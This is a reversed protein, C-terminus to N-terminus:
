LSVDLTISEDPSAFVDFISSRELAPVLEAAVSAEYGQARLADVLGGAGRELHSRVGPARTRLRVRLTKGSADLQARVLGIRSLDADLSISFRPGPDASGPKGPERRIRLPVHALRGDARVPVELVLIEDNRLRALQNVLRLDSVRAAAELTGSRDERAQALLPTSALERQEQDQLEQLLAHISDKSLPPLSRLTVEATEPTAARLLRLAEPLRLAEEEPSSSTPALSQLAEILRDIMRLRPSEQLARAVAEELAAPPPGALLPATAAVQPPSGAIREAIAQAIPALLPSATEGPLPPAASVLRALAQVREASPELGHAALFAAAQRTPGDPAVQLARDVLAPELPARMRVFERVLERSEPAVRSPPAAPERREQPPRVLEFVVEEPTQRAVRLPVKDGIMLFLNAELELLLGQVQVSYRNPSLVSQVTGTVIPPLPGGSGPPVSVPPLEM